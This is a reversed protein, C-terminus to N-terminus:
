GADAGGGGVAPRPAPTRVGGRPSPGMAVSASTPPHRATSPRRTSPVSRASSTACAATASIRAPSADGAASRRSGRRVASWPRTAPRAPPWPRRWAPRTSAAELEVADVLDDVDDAGAPGPQALVLREVDRGRRAEDDGAGAHPHALVAVPLRRRRASRAVGELGEADRDLEVPGAHGAAHVLGADAEGEGPDEMRGHAMGPRHTGLQPDRRHEVDEPRQRVGSPHAPLDDADGIRGESRQHDVHQAPPAGRPGHDHVPGVAEVLQREGTGGVDVLQAVAHDGLVLHQGLVESQHGRDDLVDADPEGLVVGRGDALHQRAPGPGRRSTTSSLAAAPSTTPPAASSRSAPRSSAAEDTSEPRAMAASSARRRPRSRSPRDLTTLRNPTTIGAPGLGCSNPRITSTM